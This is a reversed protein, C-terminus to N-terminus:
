ARVGEIENALTESIIGVAEALREDYAPRLFPQAAQHATGFEDFTGYFGRRAPGIKGIAETASQETVNITMSERLVGTEIPALEEARARIPEAGARIARAIIRKQTVLSEVGALRDLLADMGIIADGM